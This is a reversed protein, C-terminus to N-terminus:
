FVQDRPFKTETSDLEDCATLVPLLVFLVLEHTLHFYRIPLDDLLLPESLNLVLGLIVLLVTYPIAIHRCLSAVVMSLFLLFFITFLIESLLM